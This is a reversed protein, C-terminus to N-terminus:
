TTISPWKIEKEYTLFQDRKYDGLATLIHDRNPNDALTAATYIGHLFAEIRAKDRNVSAAHEAAAKQDAEVQERNRQEWLAVAERYTTLVGQGVQGALGPDKHEIFERADLEAAAEAAERKAEDTEADRKACADDYATGLPVDGSIVRAVLAPAFDLVIGCRRRSEVEGSSKGVSQSSRSWGVWRGDARRGDEAMVSCEAMVCAGSTMHRRASNCDIVYEALDDGDYVVTEPEIGAIACAAARNRGDLILGDVTLVVPNRLGNARISEVLEAMEPDALMPFKDAYPHANV